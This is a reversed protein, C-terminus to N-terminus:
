DKNNEENLFGPPSPDAVMQFKNTIGSPFSFTSFCANDRLTRVENAMALQIAVPLKWSAPCDTRGGAQFPALTSTFLEM